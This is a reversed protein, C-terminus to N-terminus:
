SAVVEVSLMFDVEEFLRLSVGLVVTSADSVTTGGFLLSPPGVVGDLAEKM